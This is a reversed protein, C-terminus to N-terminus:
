QNTALKRLEPLTLHKSKTTDLVAYSCRYTDYHGSKFALASRPMSDKVGYARYGLKEFLQCVEDVTDKNVEIHYEKM